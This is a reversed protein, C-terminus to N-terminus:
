GRDVRSQRPFFVWLQEPLRLSPWYRGACMLVAAFRASAARTTAADVREVARAEVLGARRTATDLVLGTSCSLLAVVRALSAEALVVHLDHLLRRLHRGVRHPVEDPM